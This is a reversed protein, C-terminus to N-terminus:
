ALDFDLSCVLEYVLHRKLERELNWALEFM